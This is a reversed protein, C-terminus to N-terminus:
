KEGLSYLDLSLLKHSICVDCMLIFEFVLVLSSEGFPCLCIKLNMDCLCVELHACM